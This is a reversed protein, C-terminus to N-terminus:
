RWKGEPPLGCARIFRRRISPSHGDDCDAASTISRTAALQSITFRGRTDVFVIAFLDKKGSNVADIPCYSETNRLLGHHNVGRRSRQTVFNWKQELGALRKIFETVTTKIITM